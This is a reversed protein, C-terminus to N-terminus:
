PLDQRAASEPRAQVQPARHGTEAMAFGHARGHQGRDQAPGHGTQRQGRRLCAQFADPALAILANQQDPGFGHGSGTQFDIRADGIAHQHGAEALRQIGVRLHQELVQGPFRRQRAQIGVVAGQAHRQPGPARGM